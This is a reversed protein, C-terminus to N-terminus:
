GIILRLITFIQNVEDISLLMEIDEAVWKKTPYVANRRKQEAPFLM